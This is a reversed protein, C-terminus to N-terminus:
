DGRAQLSAPDFGTRERVQALAEAEHAILARDFAAPSLDIRDGFLARTEAVIDTTADNLVGLEALIAQEPATVCQMERWMETLAAPDRARAVATEFQTKRAMSSPMRMGDAMFLARRLMKVIYHMRTMGNFHLLRVSQSRRHRLDFRKKPGGSGPRHINMVHGRRTRVVSKGMEHGSLGSNMRAAREVGYLGPGIMAFEPLPGRFVGAFIDAGEGAETWVREEVELRIWENREDTAGLEQALPFSPRLFEDADCHVLWDLGTDNLIRTANHAQRQVHHGPRKGGRGQWGDEGSHHLFVGDIGALLAEAEPNPRDLFLHLESAGIALHHAVWAALLGAPEDVTAVIGWRPLGAKGSEDEPLEGDGTVRGIAAIRVAAARSHLQWGRGM